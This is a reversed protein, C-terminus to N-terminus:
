EVDISPLYRFPYPSGSFGVVAGTGGPQDSQCTLLLEPYASNLKTSFSLPVNLM